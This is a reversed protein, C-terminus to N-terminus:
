SCCTATRSRPSREPGSPRRREPADLQAPHLRQEPKGSGPADTANVVVPNVPDSVDFAAAGGSGTHWGLRGDFDWYHGAGRTFGDKRAPPGALRGEEVAGPRRPGTVDIVSFASPGAPATPTAATRRTWASCRPPARRGAGTVTPRPRIFPRDTRRRRHDGDGPRTSTSATTTPPLGPAPGGRAMWGRLQPKGDVREGHVDHVKNESLHWQCWCAGAAPNHAQQRPGLVSITDTSSSLFPSRDPRPRVGDSIAATDPLGAVQTVTSSTLSPLPPLSPCRAGSSRTGTTRSPRRRAPVTGSLALGLLATGTARLARLM